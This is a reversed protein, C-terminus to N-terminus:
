DPGFQFGVHRAIGFDVIAQEFDNLIERLVEQADLVGKVLHPSSEEVGDDSVRRQEVGVEASDFILETITKASDGMGDL